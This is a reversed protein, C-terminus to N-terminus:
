NSVSTVAKGECESLDSIGRKGWEKFLLSLKRTSLRKEKVLVTYDDLDTINDCSYDAQLSLTGAKVVGVAFFLMGIVFISIFKKNSFKSSLLM